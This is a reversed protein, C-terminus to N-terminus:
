VHLQREGAFTRLSSTIKYKGFTIHHEVAVVTDAPLMAKSGGLAVPDHSLANVLVTGFTLTVGAFSLRCLLRQPTPSQVSTLKLPPNSDPLINTL